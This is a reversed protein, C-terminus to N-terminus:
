SKLKAIEETLKALKAEQESTVQAFHGVIGELRKIRKDLCNVQGTMTREFADLTGSMDM